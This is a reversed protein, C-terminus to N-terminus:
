FGWGVRFRFAPGQPTQNNHLLDYLFSTKLEKKGKIKIKKTIGILGSKQWAHLNKLTASLDNMRQNYNLEYGGSLWISGKIKIDLYSRLGIGEHTLRIKSLPQGWGLRYAAGIGVVSKASIKYGMNLGIDTISPLWRNSKQSQLNVGYELRQWFSKMKELNPKFDPMDAADASNSIGLKIAKDKLTNLQSQAVQMQQNLYQQPNIDMGGTAGTMSGLRQQLQQTVSARTQLGALSVPTGYNEPVGFLKALVSNKKLFNKYLRSNRLIAITKAELKKRDKLLAKYENLQQNYYYVQQKYNELQKAMGLEKLKGTLQQKRENLQQKITNSVQLKSEYQQLLQKAEALQKPDAKGELYRLTTKLTDLAPIYEKLQQTTDNGKLQQEWKDYTATSGAFLQKAATTDKKSVEVQIKKEQKRIGKLWNGLGKGTTKDLSTIRSQIGQVFGKIDKASLVTDAQDQAQLCRALM